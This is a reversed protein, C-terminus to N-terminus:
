LKQLASRIEALDALKENRSELLQMLHEKAGAIEIELFDLGQLTRSEWNKLQDEVIQGPESQTFISM